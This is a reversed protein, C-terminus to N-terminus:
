DCAYVFSLKLHESDRPSRDLTLTLWCKVHICRNSKLVGNDGYLCVNIFVCDSLIAGSAIIIHVLIDTWKTSRGCGLHENLCCEFAVSMSAPSAAHHIGYSGAVINSVITVTLWARATRVGGSVFWMLRMANRNQAGTARVLDMWVGGLPGYYCCATHSRRWLARQHISPISM